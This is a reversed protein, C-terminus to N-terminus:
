EGTSLLASVDISVTPEAEVGFPNELTSDDAELIEITDGVWVLQDTNGAEIIRLIVSDRNLMNLRVSQAEVGEVNEGEVMYFRPDLKPAAAKGFAQAADTLPAFFATVAADFDSEASNAKQSLKIHDWETSDLVTKSGGTVGDDVLVRHGALKTTNFISTM